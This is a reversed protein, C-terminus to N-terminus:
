IAYPLALSKKMKEAVWLFYIPHSGFGDREMAEVTNTVEHPAKEYLALEQILLLVQPLDRREGRRIKLM